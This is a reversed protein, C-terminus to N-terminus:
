NSNLPQDGGVWVLQLDYYPGYNSQNIGKRISWQEKYDAVEGAGIGLQGVVDARRGTTGDTDISFVPYPQGENETEKISDRFQYTESGMHSYIRGQNQSGTVKIEIAADTVGEEYPIFNFSSEIGNLANYFRVKFENITQIVESTSQKLEELTRYDATLLNYFRDGLNDQHKQIGEYIYGLNNSRRRFDKIMGSTAQDFIVSSWSYTKNKHLYEYCIFHYPYNIDHKPVTTTWENFDPSINQVHNIPALPTFPKKLYIIEINLNNETWIYNQGQLITIEIPDVYVTILDLPLTPELQYCLQVPNQELWERFKTLASKFTSISENDNRQDDTFNNASDYFIAHQGLRMVGWTTNSSHYTFRNSIQDGNIKAQKNLLISFRQNATGADEILWNEDLSGDLELYQYKQVYKGSIIDWVGGYFADSSQIIETKDTTNPSSSIYLKETNWGIIPRNNNPAATGSGEQTAVPVTIKLHELANEDDEDSFYVIAGSTQMQVLGSAYYLPTVSIIAKNNEEEIRKLELDINNLNISQGQSANDTAVPSWGYTGDGYLYQYCYYYHLHNSNYSPIVTTWIGYNGSDDTIHYNPPDNEDLAPPNPAIPITIYNINIQGTDVWINNQDLFLKVQTSTLQKIIPEELEYCLKIGNLSTRFATANTYNDDRILINVADTVYGFQKDALANGVTSNSTGSGMWSYASCIGIVNTGTKRTLGITRFVNTFGSILVWDLTSLDILDHTVTLIGTTVDLTGGYVDTVYETENGVPMEFGNQSIVTFSEIGGRAIKQPNDFSYTQETTSTALEYIALHGSLATKLATADTYRSDKIYIYSNGGNGKIEGDVMGSVSTATTTAYCDSIINFNGYAKGTLPANFYDSTYSYTLTGLDVIGYKRTVTGDSEYIDGDYYLNKNTDLKPIGRLELSSDLPYIHEVYPEYVGNKNADSINICIDNNYTTGYATHTRFRIYSTKDSVTFIQSSAYGTMSLFNKNVDYQYINSGGTSCYYYNTNPIVPIYNKSRIVSTSNSNQGTENNITGLEWEEDWQNFGITKHESTNVSILSGPNYEYYTKTLFGCSKLWTVGAGATATELSYVYDAITTGLALTLDCVLPVFTTTASFSTGSAIWYRFWTSLLISENNILASPKIIGCNYSTSATVTSSSQTTNYCVRLGISDNGTFVYYVHNPLVYKVGSNYKINRQSGATATGSVTISGNTYGTWTIGNTTASSATPLALQNWAVTGGILKLSESTHVEYPIAQTLYPKNYTKTFNVAINKINDNYSHYDHDSSPYNISIDNNYTLGYDSTAVFRIYYTLPSTTFIIGDGNTGIYSTGNPALIFNKNIDYETLRFRVGQMYYQTNPIVSIYNKSRIRTDDAVSAGTTTDINGLEWEEDWINIGTVNININDKGHISRINTPSADGAGEQYANINATLKEIANESENDNINLINGNLETSAAFNAYYLPTMNLVVDEPALSWDTAINGKEIKWKGISIEKTGSATPPSNHIWLQANSAVSQSAQSATVTFTTTLYDAHHLNNFYSTGIWEKLLNSSGGWYAGIGINNDTKGSHFVDIDWLQLTYTQNAQLNETLSLKYGLYETPSYVSPTVRLLNRGGIEINNIVGDALNGVYTWTQTGSVINTCKYVDSTTTNLYMSGITANTVTTPNNIGFFWEADSGDRGNTVTFISTTNDSYTITYTDINNSTGTKTISVVGKGDNGVYKSIIFNNEDTLIDSTIPNPQGGSKPPGSYIGIYIDGSGPSTHWRNINTSDTARSNVSSYYIYTATDLLDTITISGYSVQSM